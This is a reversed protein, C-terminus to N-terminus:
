QEYVEYTEKQCMRGQSIWLKRATLTADVQLGEHKVKRTGCAVMNCISLDTKM